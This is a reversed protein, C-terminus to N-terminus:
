HFRRLFFCEMQIDFCKDTANLYDFSGCCYCYAFSGVSFRLNHIYTWNYDFPGSETVFTRYSTSERSYQARINTHTQHPYHASNSETCNFRRQGIQQSRASDRRLKPPRAFRTQANRTKNAKWKRRCVHWRTHTHTHMNTYGAQQRTARDRHLLNESIVARGNIRKDHWLISYWSVRFDTFHQECEYSKM